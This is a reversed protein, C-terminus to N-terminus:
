ELEDPEPDMHTLLIATAATNINTEQQFEEAMERLQELEWHSAQRSPDPMWTGQIALYVPNGRAIPNKDRPWDEDIMEETIVFAGTTDGIESITGRFRAGTTTGPIMDWVTVHRGPEIHEGDGPRTMVFIAGDQTTEEIIGLPMAANTTPTM